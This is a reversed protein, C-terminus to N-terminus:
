PSTTVGTQSKKKKCIPLTFRCIEKSTKSDITTLASIGVRMDSVVEVVRVEAPVVGVDRWRSLGIRPTWGRYRSDSPITGKANKSIRCAIAALPIIQVLLEPGKSSQTPSSMSASPWRMHSVQRNTEESSSESTCNVKEHIRKKYELRKTSLRFSLTWRFCHHNRRDLQVSSVGDLQGWVCQNEERATEPFPRCSQNSSQPRDSRELHFSYQRVEYFGWTM